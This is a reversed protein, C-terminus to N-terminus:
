ARSLAKGWHSGQREVCEKLTLLENSVIQVLELRKAVLAFTPKAVSHKLPQSTATGAMPPVLLSPM